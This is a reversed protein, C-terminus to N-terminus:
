EVQETFEQDSGSNLGCCNAEGSLLPIYVFIVVTM